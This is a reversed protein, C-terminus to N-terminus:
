EEQWNHFVNQVDENDELADILKQIREEQKEETLKTYMAPIMTLEASDLQYRKEELDETTKQLNETSVLIEYFEEEVSFDEAGSELADMMLKEEQLGDKKEIIIQGKKQFLFAVCGTTGLNGGFKDFYHRVEGATRNRNDTMAEVIFAVGGPGYGEYIIEEYDKMDTDGAAKKVSREISENPMNSRKAKAIIDKLKGNVEPDPGGQKVCVAIERGLKTFMKGKQADSKGKRHKINAWKSHGAM